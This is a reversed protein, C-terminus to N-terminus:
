GRHAAHERVFASARAIDHTEEGPGPPPRDIVHVAVGLAAAADLKARDGGSDKTVLAEIRLRALTEREEGSVFPPRGVIWAVGDRPPAPDIRRCWLALGRGLFPALSGPGVTLLVRTGPALAEAAAGATPHRRWSAEAAWPAAVARLYPVGAEGCLRAARESIRAAFPHTADLVAAVGDLAARFGADGGFGGVRTPVALEAPAATAGALSAVVDLGACAACVRRAMGTGALVLVRGPM